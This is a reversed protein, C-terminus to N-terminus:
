CRISRVNLGIYRGDFGGYLRAPTAPNSIRFQVALLPRGDLIAAPIRISQKQEAQWVPAEVSYADPRQDRRRRRTPSSVRVRFRRRGSQARAYLRDAEPVNATEALPGRGTRSDMSGDAISTTAWGYAMYKRANPTSLDIVEGFDYDATDPVLPAYCSGDVDNRHLPQVWRASRMSPVDIVSGTTDQSSRHPCVGLSRRAPGTLGWPFMWATCTWRVCRTGRRTIATQACASRQRWSASYISAPIDEGTFGPSCQFPPVVILNEYTRGLESWRPSKLPASGLQHAVGQVKQVRRNLDAFQVVLAAALICKSVAVGLRPVYDIAGFRRPSLLGALLFTRLHAPERRTRRAARSSRVEGADM